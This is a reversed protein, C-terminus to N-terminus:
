HSISSRFFPNNLVPQITPTLPRVKKTPKRATRNQSTLLLSTLSRARTSNGPRFSSSLSAVDRPSRACRLHAVRSTRNRPPMLRLPPRRPWLALFSALRPSPRSRPCAVQTRRIVRAKAPVPKPSSQCPRIALTHAIAFSLAQALSSLRAICEPVGRDLDSRPDYALRLSRCHRLSIQLVTCPQPLM